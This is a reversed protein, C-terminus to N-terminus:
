RTSSGKAIATIPIAYAIREQQDDRAVIMGVAGAVDDSWAPGGSFGKELMASGHQEIHVWELGVPRGIFGEPLAARLDDQPFDM